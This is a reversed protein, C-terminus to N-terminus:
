LTGTEEDVMLMNKRWVSHPRFRLRRGEHEALYITGGNCYACWTAAVPIGGVVDNVIHHPLLTEVAVVYLSEGISASLVAAPDALPGSRGVHQPDDVHVLFRGPRTAGNFFSVGATLGALAFTLPSPAVVAPVVAFELAIGAVVARILTLHYATWPGLRPILTIWQHAFVGLVALLLGCIGSLILM